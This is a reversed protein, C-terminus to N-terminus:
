TRAVAIHSFMPFRVGAGERYRDVVPDSERRVSQLLGLLADGDHALAPIVAAGARVTMEVWQDASPFRADLAAAEITVESFGAQELVGRLEAEEALSFPIAVKELPVQLHRAEATFLAKMVEHRDLSQWVAIVARGGPALANRACRAAAVRDPFFQFGQQCLVLDFSAAPLDLKCADGQIWEIEAGPAAPGSRAVALMDPNIDVGVVKGERGVLPAVQRTVIGTGCALDLVREGPRPAARDILLKAWPAFLAPGLFNHYSEAPNSAPQTM